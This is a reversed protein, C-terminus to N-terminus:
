YTSSLTRWRKFKHTLFAALIMWQGRKDASPQSASSSSRSIVRRWALSHLSRVERLWRLISVVVSQCQKAITFPASLLRPTRAREVASQEHMAELDEDGHGRGCCSTWGTWGSHCKCFCAKFYHGHHVLLLVFLHQVHRSTCQMYDFDVRSTVNAAYAPWDPKYRM